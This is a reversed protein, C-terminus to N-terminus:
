PRLQDYLARTLAIRFLIIRKIMQAHDWPDPNGLPHPPNPNERKKEGAPEEVEGLSQGRSYFLERRIAAGVAIREEDTPERGETKANEIQQEAVERERRLRELEERDIM